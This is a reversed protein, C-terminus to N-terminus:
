GSANASALSTSTGGADVASSTMSLRFWLTRARKGYHSSQHHRRLTEPTAPGRVGLRSAHRRSAGVGPIAIDRRLGRISVGDGIGIGVSVAGGNKNAQLVDRVHEQADVLAPVPLVRRREGRLLARRLVLLDELSRAKDLADNMRVM